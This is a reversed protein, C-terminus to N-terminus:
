SKLKEVSQRHSFSLPIALILLLLYFSYRLDDKNAPVWDTELVTLKPPFQLYQQM